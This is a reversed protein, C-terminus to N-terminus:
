RAQRDTCNRCVGTTELPRDKTFQPGRGCVTCRLDRGSFQASARPDRSKKPEQRTTTM